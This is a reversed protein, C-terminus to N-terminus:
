TLGNRKAWADLEEKTPAPRGRYEEEWEEEEEEQRSKWIFPPYESPPRIPPLEGHDYTRFREAERREWYENSAERVREHYFKRVM